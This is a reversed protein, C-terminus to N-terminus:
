TGGRSGLMFLPWRHSHMCHGFEDSLGAQVYGQCRYRLSGGKGTVSTKARPSCTGGEFALAFGSLVVDGWRGVRCSRLEPLQPLLDEKALLSGCVRNFYAGGKSPVLWQGCYAFLAEASLQASPLLPWSEVASYLCCVYFVSGSTGSHPFCSVICQM